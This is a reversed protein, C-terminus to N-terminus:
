PNQLADSIGCRTGLGGTLCYRFSVTVLKAVMVPIISIMRVDGGMRNIMVVLAAVTVAAAAAAAAWVVALVWWGIVWWGGSVVVVLVVGM